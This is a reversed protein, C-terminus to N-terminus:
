GQGRALARRERCSRRPQVWRPTSALYREYREGFTRSLHAEETELWRNFILFALITLGAGPRSQRVLSAGALSAVLGLYQPNRTYAYIGDTLLDNTELANVQAAGSFRSAGVIALGLGSGALVRGTWRGLLAHGGPGPLRRHPDRPRNGDRSLVAGAAAAFSAYTTWMLAATSPRLRGRDILDKEMRGLVPIRTGTPESPRSLRAFPHKAM